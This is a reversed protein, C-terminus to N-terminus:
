KPVSALLWSMARKTMGKSTSPPKKRDLKVHIEEWNGDLVTRVQHDRRPGPRAPMPMPRWGEPMM